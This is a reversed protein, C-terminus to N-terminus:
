PPRWSAILAGWGDRVQAWPWPLGIVAIGATPLSVETATLSSALEAAAPNHGVYMLTTVEPAAARIIAALKGAGADYLRSDVTATVPAGLEAGVYHWTQRARRAASCLVADPRYGRDRLWAGAASADRQGSPRLAREVDPGGPLEGAKAHRMLILLLDGNMAGM